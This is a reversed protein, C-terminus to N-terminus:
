ESQNRNEALGDWLFPRIRVYTFSILTQVISTAPVALLAGALGYMHEGAILVFVVVVPNIKASTGIIKPNLMNAEIFHIGLIWVLVFVGTAFSSTLGILVAPVSSIITGFIPILSMVGAFIALVIAYEPIFIAFGIGSLIGNVLCILLQGRVVGSLGEDLKTLLEDYDTRYRPPVVGRFFPRIEDMGILMFAAVMFVLVVGILAGLVGQVISQTFGLFGSLMGSGAKELATKLGSGIERQLNQLRNESAKQAQPTINIRGEGVSEVEITTDRLRVGFVGPQLEEVILNARHQKEDVGGEPGWRGQMTEGPVMRLAESDLLARETAMFEVPELTLVDFSQDAPNLFLNPGFGWRSALREDSAAITAPPEAPVQELSNGGLISEIKSEVSEYLNPADRLLDQLRAMAKEGEYGLKPFLYYGFGWVAGLFCIYVLIVSIWRPLGRRAVKGVFPELIYALILAVIFPFLISRFSM